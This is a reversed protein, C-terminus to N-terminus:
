SFAIYESERILTYTFTKKGSVSEQKECLRIFQEWSAYEKFVQGGDSYNFVNNGQPNGSRHIDIEFSGRQTPSTFNYKTLDNNKHVVSTAFKLCKHDSKNQHLGLKCQDIYQGLQLMNRNLGIRNTGKDYGPVVTCSYTFEVWNGNENVFFVYMKDDFKNSVKGSDKSPNRMGVINLVCKKDYVKFGKSKLFRIMKDIKPNSKPDSLSPNSFTGVDSTTDPSGNTSPAYNPDDPYDTQITKDTPKFDGSDDRAVLDNERKTSKWSDGLQSNNERDTTRVTSIQNNDVIKVHHSLFVPDRSEKYIQLITIFSPNPVVAAGLNGLYPGGQNGLLNDVFQDFWDFFHNGLISQQGATEDGLNLLATNDKLNLNISKEKINLNNYKHDLKLGESDNVYIQTKHDFILSKMSSYDKTSLKQLKSELNINFHDAYVYEPKYINGSDFVVTVIKGKEPVNFANGNLDKWPSAWPIDDKPIDDFIDIVRIRCRGLKKPDQNEEVIGIYTSAKDIYM